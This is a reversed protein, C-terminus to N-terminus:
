SFIDKLDELLSENGKIVWIKFASFPSDPSVQRKIKNKIDLKDQESYGIGFCFDQLLKGFETLENVLKSRINIGETIKLTTTGNYIENLLNATEIVDTDNTLATVNVKEKPFPKIDFKLVNSIIKSNDLCNLINNYNALKTNNCHSCAYFLNSWDYKLNIDGKHPKFHEVNISSPAKEECLYCKNYFDKKLTPIVEGCKYDGSVKLKEQALCLPATQSKVLNIM